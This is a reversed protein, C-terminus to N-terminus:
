EGLWLGHLNLQQVRERADKAYELVKAAEEPKSGQLTVKNYQEMSRAYVLDPDRWESSVIADNLSLLQEEDKCIKAYRINEKLSAVDDRLDVLEQGTAFRANNMMERENREARIESEPLDSLLNFEMDYGIPIDGKENQMDDKTSMFLQSLSSVLECDSNPEGLRPRPNTNKQRLMSNAVFASSSSTLISASALVSLALDSKM